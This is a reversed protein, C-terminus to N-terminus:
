VGVVVFTIFMEVHASSSVAAALSLLLLSKFKICFGVGSLDMTSCDVVSEILM